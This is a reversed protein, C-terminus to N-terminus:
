KMEVLYDHLVQGGVAGLFILVVLGIVGICLNRIFGILGSFPMVVAGCGSLALVVFALAV